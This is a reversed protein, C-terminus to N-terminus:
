SPINFSISFRQKIKAVAGRFSRGFTPYGSFKAQRCADPSALGPLLPPLVAPVQRAYGDLFAQDNKMTRDKKIKYIYGTDSAGMFKAASAAGSFDAFVIASIQHTEMQKPTMFVPGAQKWEKENGLIVQTYHHFNIVGRNDAMGCFFRGDNLKLAYGNGAYADNFQKSLYLDAHISPFLM